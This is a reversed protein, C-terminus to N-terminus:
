VARKQVLLINKDPFRAVDSVGASYTNVLSDITHTVKPLDGGYDHFGVWGGPVLKGWALHFDNDVWVPDHNGDIFAFSFNVNTTFAVKRSDQKIVTICQSYPRTIVRFIDEQSVTKGILRRYMENMQTGDITSTHDFNPDFVDVVWVRKGFHSALKALKSTGGGLFAGVELFDGPLNHLGKAGIFEVLTEYGVLDSFPPVVGSRVLRRLNREWRLRRLVTLVPEPCAARLMAKV